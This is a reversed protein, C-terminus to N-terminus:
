WCLHQQCRKVQLLLNCTNQKSGVINVLIWLVSQDGYMEKVFLSLFYSLLDFCKNQTFKKSIRTAKDGSSTRINNLSYEHEDSKPSFLLRWKGEEKRRIVGQM